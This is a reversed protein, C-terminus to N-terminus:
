ILRCRPNLYLLLYIHWMLVILISQFSIYINCCQKTWHITKIETNRRTHVLKMIQILYQNIEIRNFNATFQDHFINLASKMLLLEHWVKHAEITCVKNKYFLFVKRVQLICFIRSFHFSHFSVMRSTLENTGNILDVGKYFAMALLAHFFFVLTQLSNQLLWAQFVM